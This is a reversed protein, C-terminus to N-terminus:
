LQLWFNQFVQTSLLYGLPVNIAVGIAFALLPKYGVKTLDRLRTTLGISLFTLVFFWGRLEKLVALVTKSYATGTSSDLGTLVLSTVISAVFFGIIFKPFRRWIEKKDIHESDKVQKREWLTVSLIAVLFAWVGVFM